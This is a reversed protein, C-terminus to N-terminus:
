FRVFIREMSVRSQEGCVVSLGCVVSEVSWARWPGRWMVRIFVCRCTLRDCFFDVFLGTLTYQIPYVRASRAVFWMHQWLAGASVTKM